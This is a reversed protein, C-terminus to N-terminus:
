VAFVDGAIRDFSVYFFPRALAPSAFDFLIVGYNREKELAYGGFLANM